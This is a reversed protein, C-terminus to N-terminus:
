KRSNKPYFSTIYEEDIVTADTKGALRELISKKMQKAYYRCFEAIERDKHKRRYWELSKEQKIHTYYELAVEYLFFNLKIKPNEGEM